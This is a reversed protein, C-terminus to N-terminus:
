PAQKRDGSSEGPRRGADVVEAVPPKTGFVEQFNAEDFLYAPERAFWSWFKRLRMVIPQVRILEDVKWTKPM